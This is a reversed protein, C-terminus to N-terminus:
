QGLELHIKLSKVFKSQTNAEKVNQPLKNYESSAQFMPNCLGKNTRIGVKYINEISRTNHAHVDKAFIVSTNSKLRKNIVNYILKCQEFKLIMGLKFVGLERYLIETHTLRDFGFM